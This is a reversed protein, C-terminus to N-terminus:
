LLNKSSVKNTKKRKKSNKLLEKFSDFEIEYSIGLRPIDLIM